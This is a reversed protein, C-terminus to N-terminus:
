PLCGEISSLRIHFVIHSPLRGEISYSRRHFVVEFYQLNFIVAVISSSRWHFIVELPLRGGIFSSRWYFVVELQLHGRISSLRWHFLVEFPLRIDYFIELFNELQSFRCHNWRQCNSHIIYTHIYGCVHSGGSLGGDVNSSDDKFM